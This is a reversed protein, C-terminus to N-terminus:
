MEYSSAMRLASEFFSSRSFTFSSLLRSSRWPSSLLRESISSSFSPCESHRGPVTALHAVGALVGLDLFKADPGGRATATELGPWQELQHDLLAGRVQEKRGVRRDLDLDLALDVGDVLLHQGGVRHARRGEAQHRRVLDFEELALQLDVKRDGLGPQAAEAARDEVLATERGHHHAVDGGVH